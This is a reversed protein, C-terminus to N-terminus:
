DLTPKRQHNMAHTVDSGVDRQVREAVNSPTMWLANWRPDIVGEDERFRLDCARRCLANREDGLRLEDLEDIAAYAFYGTKAHEPQARHQIRAYGDSAAGIM